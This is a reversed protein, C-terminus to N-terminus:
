YNWSTTGTTGTTGVAGATGYTGVEEMFGPTDYTQATKTVIWKGNVLQYKNM